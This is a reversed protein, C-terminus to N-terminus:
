RGYKKIIDMVSKKEKSAQQPAKIMEAVHMSKSQYSSQQDAIVSEIKAKREAIIKDIQELRSSCWPLGSLITVIKGNNEHYNGEFLDIPLGNGFKNFIYQYNLNGMLSEQADFIIGAKFVHAYEIPAFISNDWSLHVSNAIGKESIDSPSLTINAEAIIAIGKQRVVTIFDKKDFNGNKSHKDTYSLLKILVNVFGSNTIEYMKGKGIGNNKEKVKNNDIPFICVDLNSLESFTQICNIQSTTTESEDPLIAAGVITKDFTNTMVEMLIASMGAGSGGSSSFAFIIVEIEPNSFNNVIFHIVTQYHQQMLEIAVDRNHGVGESGMVKLKLREEVNSLSDLDKQSFNIAGAFLGHRAAEDAINGGAGGLGIVAITM